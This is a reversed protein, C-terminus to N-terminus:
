STSQDSVLIDGDRRVETFDVYAPDGAPLPRFQDFANYIRKLFAFDQTM